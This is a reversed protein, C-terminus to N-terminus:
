LNLARKLAIIAGIHLGEHVLNFAIADKVSNLTVGVSTLYPNYNKFTGKSLDEGTTKILDTLAAKLVAVEQATPAQGPVTGKRYAKIFTEPLNPTLGSLSYVLLQQTVAVHAVNWWINNNFGPPITSLNELSIENLYKVYIARSATTINLLTEM